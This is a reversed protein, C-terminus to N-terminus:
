FPVEELSQAHLAQLDEESPNLTGNLAYIVADIFNDTELYDDGGPIALWPRQRTPIIELEGKAEDLSLWYNYRVEIEKAQDIELWIKFTHGNDWEAVFPYPSTSTDLNYQLELLNKTFLHVVLAELRRTEAREEEQKRKLEEVEKRKQEVREIILQELTKM